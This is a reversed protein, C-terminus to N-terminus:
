RPTWHIVHKDVLGVGTPASPTPAGTGVVRAVGWDIRIEALGLGDLRVSLETPTGITMRIRTVRGDPGRVDAPVLSGPPLAPSAFPTARIVATGAGPAAVRVVSVPTATGAPPRTDLLVPKGQLKSAIAPVFDFVSQIRDYTAPNATRLGDWYGTMSLALGCFVAFACALAAVTRSARRLFARGSVAGEVRLWVLLSALLLLTVFDVGYRQTGGIFNLIPALLVLVAVLVLLSALKMDERARGRLVVLMVPAAFALLAIPTTALAGAVPESIFEPPIVGTYAPDLAVFPFVLGFRPPALLYSFAGPALRDLDFRDYLRPNWGGGLQYNSGFEVLSGFRVANYIGLLLLCVGLPALAAAGVRLAGRRTFGDARVAANWAWIWIPLALILHPRAGVALGLALSGGALRWLSPRERLAGTLTLYLGALICCYGGAIAEEWVAPRRLLFPAVNAFGLVVGVVVRTTLSTQPRYREILFRMLLLAFIFGVSCLLATALADTAVVGVARLPLHVLLVPTPGFYLYYHGEFYVVDTLLYPANQAPDYPDPLAVLQPPPEIPLNTQGDLFGDTLLTYYGTGPTVSPSSYATWFYFACVVLACVALAIPEARLLRRSRALLAAGSPTAPATPAAVSGERPPM